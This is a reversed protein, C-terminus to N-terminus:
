KKPPKKLLDNKRKSHISCGEKWPVCKGCKPCYGGHEKKVCSPKFTKRCTTSGSFGTLAYTFLLLPAAVATKCVLSTDVGGYHDKHFLLLRSNTASCSQSLHISQCQTNKNCKSLLPSFTPSSCCSPLLSITLAEFFVKHIWSPLEESKLPILQTDHGCLQPM